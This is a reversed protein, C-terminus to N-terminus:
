YNAVQSPDLEVSHYNTARTEYISHIITQLNQIGSYLTGFSSVLCM